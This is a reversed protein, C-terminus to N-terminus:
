MAAVRLAVEVVAQIAFSQLGLKVDHHVCLQTYSPAPAQLNSVLPHRSRLRALRVREFWITLPRVWAYRDWIADYDRERYTSYQVLGLVGDGAAWDAGLRGQGWDRRLGSLAGPLLVHGSLQAVPASRHQLEYPPATHRQQLSRGFAM